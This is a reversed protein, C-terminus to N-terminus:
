QELCALRAHIFQSCLGWGRVEWKGGVRCVCVGCVFVRVKMKKAPQSPKPAKRKRSATEERDSTDNDDSDIQAASDYRFVCCLM